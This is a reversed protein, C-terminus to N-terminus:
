PSLPKTTNNTHPKLKKNLNTRTWHRDVMEDHLNDEDKKLRSSLDIVKLSLMQITLFLINGPHNTEVM